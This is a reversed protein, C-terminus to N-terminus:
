SIPCRRRNAPCIPLSSASGAPPSAAATGCVTLRFCESRAGGANDAASVLTNCFDEDTLDYYGDAAATLNGGTWSWCLFRSSSATRRSGPRNPSVAGVCHRFCPFARTELGTQTFHYVLQLHRRLMVTVILMNVCIFKLRLKRIM